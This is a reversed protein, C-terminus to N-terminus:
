RSGVVSAGVAPCVRVQAGLTAVHRYCYAACADLVVPMALYHAARLIPEVTSHSLFIRRSYLAEVITHLQEQTVGNGVTVTIRGSPPPNSFLDLQGEAYHSHTM